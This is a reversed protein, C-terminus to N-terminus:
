QNIVEEEDTPTYEIADEVIYVGQPYLKNMIVKFKEAEERKLFNGVRVKFSPSQFVVYSKQDPVKALLETKLKFADDRKTTSLVQIRFGKYFGNPTLMATRQNAQRQKVSLIDLRPDKKVVITDAANVFIGSGLLLFLILFKNLLTHLTNETLYSFKNIVKVAGKRRQTSKKRALACPRLKKITAKAQLNVKCM